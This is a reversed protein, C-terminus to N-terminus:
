VTRQQARASSAYPTAQGPQCRSQQNKRPGPWSHPSPPAQPRSPQHQNAPQAPALSCAHLIPSGSAPQGPTRLRQFLRPRAWRTYRLGPSSIAHPPRSGGGATASPVPSGCRTAEQASSALPPSAMRMPSRCWRPFQPSVQQQLHNSCAWIALPRTNIQPRHLPM